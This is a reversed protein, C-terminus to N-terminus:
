TSIIGYFAGLGVTVYLIQVLINADALYIDGLVAVIVLGGFAVWFRRKDM